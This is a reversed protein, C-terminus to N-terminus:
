RIKNWADEFQARHTILRKEITFPKTYGDFDALCPALQLLFQNTKHRGVGNRKIAIEKLEDKTFVFIHKPKAIRVDFLVWVCYDFRGEAVQNGDRFSADAWKDKHFCSSKVEVLKGCKPLFIDASTKCRENLIEIVHGRQALRKAVLFEAYKCRLNKDRLKLRSIERLATELSATIKALSQLEM